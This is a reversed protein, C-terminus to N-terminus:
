RHAEYDDIDQQTIDRLDGVTVKQIYFSDRDFLQYAHTGAYVKAKVVKLTIAQDPPMWRFIRNHERAEDLLPYPSVNVCHGSNVFLKGDSTEVLNFPSTEYTHGPEYRWMNDQPTNDNRLIMFM